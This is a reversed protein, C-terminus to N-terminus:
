FRSAPHNLLFQPVMNLIASRGVPRSQMRQGRSKLIATVGKALPTSMSSSYKIAKEYDGAAYRIDGVLRVASVFDPFETALREAVRSADHLRDTNFYLNALAYVIHPNDPQHECAKKLHSEADDNRGLALYSEVLINHAPWTDPDHELERHAQTIANEYDKMDLYMQALRLHTDLYGESVDLTKKYWKIAESHSDEHEFAQGLGYYANQESQYNLLIISDTEAYDQFKRKADLYHLYWKKAEAWEETMSYIFGLTIIPDLYDPKYKLAEFCYEKAKEMEQKYFCASAMQHLAMLHLHAHNSSTPDTNDIVKRAHFMIKDCIEPPPNNKEGRYIQALNMNAFPDNPNKELQKFLLERSREIKAKMKEPSLGYGYHRIGVGVRLIVYSRKDFKLQNHVIGDYYAGVKRRFFRISPLFSTELDDRSLNFVSISILHHDKNRLADKLLPVDEQVLEEDADLIFIWEKTAYSLSQNRAKSFDKEWEHHYVKAGYSKAIEVTRDTSGTDVIIIEDAVDKVSDLARPLNEEENKVIMCVSVTPESSRISKKLMEFESVGPCVEIGKDLIAIADEPQDNYEALRALNIYAVPYDPKVRIAEEFLKVAEQLHGDERLGVGMNNLVEHAKDYTGTFPYDDQKDKPISEFLEIYKRGYENVLSYEELRSYIYVLLYYFDLWDGGLSLADQALTKARELDNSRAAAFAAIRSAFLFAMQDNERVDHTLLPDLMNHVSEYKGADLHVQAQDLIEAFHRNEKKLAPTHVQRRQRVNRSKNRPTKKNKKKSM